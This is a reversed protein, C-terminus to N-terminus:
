AKSIASLHSACWAGATFRTLERLEKTIEM